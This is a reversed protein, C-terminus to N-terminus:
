LSPQHRHLSRLFFYIGLSLAAAFFCWVSDFTVWYYYRSIGSFIINAIGLIVMGRHSSLLYPVYTSGLYIFGVFSAFKKSHYRLSHGAVTVEHNFHFYFWLMYIATGIGLLIFFSLIKRNKEKPELLWVAVPSVLPWVLYAFFLFATSLPGKWDRLPGDKVALWLLGEIAQQIGFLLPIAALLLEKRSRTTKLTAAGATTLVASSTFSAVPGFCMGYIVM